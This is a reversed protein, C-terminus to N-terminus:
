QGLVEEFLEILQDPNKTKLFEALERFKVFHGLYLGYKEVEEPPINHKSIARQSKMKANIEEPNAQYKERMYKKMYIRQNEKRKASKPGSHAGREPETTTTPPITTIFDTM